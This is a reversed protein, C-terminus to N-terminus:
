PKEWPMETKNNVLVISNNPNKFACKELFLFMFKQKYFFLFTKSQHPNSVINDM